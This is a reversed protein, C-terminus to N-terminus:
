GKIFYCYMPDAMVLSALSVCPAHCEGYQLACHACAHWGFYKDHVLKLREGHEYHNGILVEM